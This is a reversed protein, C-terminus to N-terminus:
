VLREVILITKKVNLFDIQQLNWLGRKEPLILEVFNLGANTQFCHYCDVNALQTYFISHSTMGSTLISKLPLTSVSINKHLVKM